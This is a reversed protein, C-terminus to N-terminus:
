LCRLEQMQLEALAYELVADMANYKLLSPLPVQDCRNESRSDKSDFYSTVAENYPLVGLRVFAQFKLGTIGKRNDLVHAAQMTDWRWNNVGHGFQRRTWREEFKLNAAIKPMDSQLLKGMEDIAAGHWPFAITRKGRWCVACSVIKARSGDPKLMNTEYDFAIPGGAERMKRLVDAAESPSELLRIQKEYEPRSPLDDCAFSQKLYETMLVRLSDENPMRLLYAPHWIPCLWAQKEYWPIKWGIWKNLQSLDRQVSYLPGIISEVAVKGLLLIVRPQLQDIVGLVNPRCYELELDTPTRNKPPRCIVANTRWCDKDLSVGIRDLLDRLLRGSEGVLPRGRADEEKGPAEAVILVRRNGKGYVPMKPSECSLYLRCLECRPKTAQPRQKLVSSDAQFFGQM